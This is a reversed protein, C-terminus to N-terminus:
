FNEIAPIKCNKLAWAVWWDYWLLKALTSDQGEDWGPVSGPHSTQWNIRAVTIQESHEKTLRHCGPHPHLLGSREDEGLFLDQLGTSKCFAFMSSYSPHRGNSHESIDFNRMMPHQGEKPEPNPWYPADPHATREVVFHSYLEDEDTEVVANGIYIDYGM